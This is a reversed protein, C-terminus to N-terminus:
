LLKVFISMVNVHIKSKIYLYYISRTDFLTLIALFFDRLVEFDCM